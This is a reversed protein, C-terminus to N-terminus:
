HNSHFNSKIFRLLDEKSQCPNVLRVTNEEKQCQPIYFHVPYTHYTYELPIYNLKADMKVISIHLEATEEAIEDLVKLIKVSGKYSGWYITLLIDIKSKKIFMKLNHGVCIQVAGNRNHSSLSWPQSYFYGACYNLNHCYYFLSSATKFDDVKNIRKQRDVSYVQPINRNTVLDDMYKKYWTPFVVDLDQLDAIIFDINYFRRASAVQYVNQLTPLYYNVGNGKFDMFYIISATRKSNFSQRDLIQVSKPYNEQLHEKLDELTFEPDTPLAFPKWKYKSLEVHRWSEGQPGMNDKIFQMINRTDRPGTNYGIFNEKDNHPIFIITPYGYVNYKFPIYNKNGDTYIIEVNSQKLKECMEEYNPEYDENPRYDGLGIIFLIDKSSKEILEDYNLHVCIKVLTENKAPIPQSKYLSGSLLEESLHSLVEVTNYTSWHDYIRKREDIVYVRLSEDEPRVLNCFYRIPNTQPYMIDMDIQDAAIFEIRDGYKLSVEYLRDLCKTLYYCKERFHNFGIIIPRKIQHFTSRDLITIKNECKERVYKEFHVFKEEAWHPPERPAAPIPKGFTNAFKDASKTDNDDICIERFKKLEEEVIDCEM